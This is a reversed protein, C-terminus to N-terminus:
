RCKMESATANARNENDPQTNIITKKTKKEIQKKEQESNM